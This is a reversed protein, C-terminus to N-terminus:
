SLENKLEHLGRYDPRSLVTLHKINLSPLKLAVPLPHVKHLVTEKLMGRIRISALLLGIYEFLNLGLKDLVLTGSSYVLLGGLECKFLDPVFNPVDIISNTMLGGDLILM